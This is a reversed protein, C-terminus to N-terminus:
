KTVLGLRKRAYISKAESVHCAPCLKVKATKKHLRSMPLGCIPNECFGEKLTFGRSKNWRRLTDVPVGIKNSLEIFGFCEKSVKYAFDYKDRFKEFSFDDM